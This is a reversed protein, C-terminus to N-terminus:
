WKFSFPRYERLGRVASAALRAQMQIISRIEHAKGRHQESSTLRLFVRSAVNERSAGDLQGKQLVVQGGKNMWAFIARDVVPQRFEEVLDLVLSPKGSRDVHLFGAFPELGANMVAGWVHATLIGYGYNLAANVPDTAGQHSRGSFGLEEPLMNGIRQWYLRGAAGEIGMLEARVDAPHDGCVALACRRLKRLVAAASELAARREGDRSKAFYRMLKEQNHLKGAVIWRCLDAGRENSCAALQARRTEVTATLMPSTVLAFPKGSSNLFAIRIGRECLDEILDGSFSVGRSGIIIEQLRLFPVQACVSKGRKIVVRESKKGVFLGFGSVLLQSGNETALLTVTDDKPLLVDDPPEIPLELQEPIIDLKGTIWNHQAAAPPKRLSPLPSVLSSM